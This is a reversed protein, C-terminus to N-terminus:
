CLTLDTLTDLTKVRVIAEFNGVRETILVEVFTHVVSNFNDYFFNFVKFSKLFRVFTVPPSPTELSASSFSFM